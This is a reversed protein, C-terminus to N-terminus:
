VLNQRKLVGVLDVGKGTIFQVFMQGLEKAGTLPDGNTLRYVLRFQHLLGPFLDPFIQFSRAM